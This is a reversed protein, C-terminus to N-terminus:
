RTSSWQFSSDEEHQVSHIAFEEDKTAEEFGKVTDGISHQQATALRKGLETALLIVNPESLLNQQHGRIECVDLDGHILPKWGLYEDAVLGHLQRKSRFLVVDGNYPRPVYKGAVKTHKIALAELIYYMPLHSLDTEGEVKVQGLAIASKASVRDLAFRWREVLYGVGRYSLNELELSLRKTARFWCRQLLTATPKFRMAEPHMSQILIVLPVEQGTSALQQAAEIALLGGFCFGGL